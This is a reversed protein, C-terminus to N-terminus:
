IVKANVMQSVKLMGTDSVLDKVWERAKCWAGVREGASSTATMDSCLKM